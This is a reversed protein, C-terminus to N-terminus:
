VTSEAPPTEGWTPKITVSHGVIGDLEQEESWDFIAGTFVTLDAGTTALTAADCFKYVLSAKTRKATKLAEYAPHGKRKQLFFTAGLELLGPVWTKAGADERSTSEVETYKNPISVKGVIKLETDVSSVPVFIKLQYGLLGAYFTM